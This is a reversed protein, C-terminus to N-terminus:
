SQLEVESPELNLTAESRHEPKESAILVSLRERRIPRLQPAVPSCTARERRSRPQGASMNESVLPGPNMM